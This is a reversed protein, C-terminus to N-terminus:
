AEVAAPARRIAKKVLHGCLHPFSMGDAKAAKPVLSTATFGPITNVELVYLGGDNDLMMDVRSLDRCGLCRHAELAARQARERVSDELPAPVRYETEGATYKADYNFFSQRPCIEIVPLAREGLVGVTLERGRICEEVLLRDGYEGAAICARRLEKPNAAFEVGISSGQRAPKVVLPWRFEQLATFERRGRDVVLSRPTPM